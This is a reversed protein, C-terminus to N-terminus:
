PNAKRAKKLVVRDDLYDKTKTYELLALCGWAAHALHHLGSEEDFKEGRWFKWLHRMIAAFVRGWTLGKEWNRDGYKKAGFTYVKALESLPEAPILDYREKGIDFKQAENNM